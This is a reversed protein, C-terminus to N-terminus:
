KIFDKNKEYAKIIHSQLEVDQTLKNVEEQFDIKELESLLESVSASAILLEELYDNYLERFTMIPELIRIQWKEPINTAISSLKHNLWQQNFRMKTNQIFEDTVDDNLPILTKVQNWYMTVHPELRKDQMAEYVTEYGHTIGWCAIFLHAGNLIWVKMKYYPELKQVLIMEKPKNDPVLKSLLGPDEIWWRGYLEGISVLSESNPIVELYTSDHPPETVIRDVLTNVFVVSRNIWKSFSDELNWIRAQNMVLRRLAVGNNNILETPLIIVKREILATFRSYLLKTLIGIFTGSKEKSNFIEESVVYGKETSNSVIMLTSDSKVLELIISWENRMSLTNFGSITFGSLNQRDRLIIYFSGAAKLKAVTEEGNDTINTIYVNSEWGSNKMEFLIPDILTRLLKGEGIQLVTTYGNSKDM